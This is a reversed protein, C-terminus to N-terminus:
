SAGKLHVFTGLSGGMSYAIFVPWNHEVSTVLQYLIMFYLINEIFVIGSAALTKGKAILSMRATAIFMEIFGVILYLALQIVTPIM